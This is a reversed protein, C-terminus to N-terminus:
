EIFGQATAEEIYTEAAADLAEQPTLDGTGVLPLFQELSTVVVSVAPNKDYNGIGEAITANAAPLYPGGFEAASSRAPMGVAAARQQSEADAAEMIVRFILDPDNTTAVPIMYYDNAALGARPSDPTVRPAPAFAIVDTLQTREPDEMNAARSAWMKTSPLTGLQMAVEQDNLSLSRGNPGVCSESVAALTNLASLGEPGNFTPMNDEDLYDGGYARLLQFFELEWGRSRSLDITFPADWESDLGITNCIAIVDEYTEPVELGLEEFVDARYILHQTNGVIPIGLIQGDLTANGWVTEPIDDLNYEERYQDVLDNLPLIWGPAGWEAIEGNSGHVIDYPSDQGTSLALAVQEQADDASLLQTDVSINEVENCAAVEDAYFDTIPFSWGILSLEVAEDPAAINCVPGDQAMVPMGALMALISFALLRKMM